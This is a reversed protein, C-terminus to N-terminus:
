PHSTLARVMQAILGSAPEATVIPSDGTLRTIYVALLLALAVGAALPGAYSPLRRRLLWLLGGAPLLFVLPHYDYAAALDGRLLALLARTMGCGPCSIGTLFRFPCRVLAVLLALAAALLLQGSQLRRTKIPHRDLHKM